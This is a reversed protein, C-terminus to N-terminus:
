DNPIGRLCDLWHATLPTKHENYGNVTIVQEIMPAYVKDMRERYHVFYSAIKIVDSSYRAASQDHTLIITREKITRQIWEPETVKIGRYLLHKDFWSARIEQWSLLEQTRANFEDELYLIVQEITVYNDLIANILSHVFQRTYRM